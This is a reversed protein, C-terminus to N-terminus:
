RVRDYREHGTPFAGARRNAAGARRGYRLAGYVAIGNDCDTNGVRPRDRCHNGGAGGDATGIANADM